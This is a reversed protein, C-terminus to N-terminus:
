WGKAALGARVMQVHIDVVDEFDRAYGGALTPVVAVGAQLCSTFVLKDRALLGKKTLKLLGLQDEEFPDAGAVYVVLEPRSALVRPLAGALAALYADDGTYDPLGIDLSSRQKVPYNNEQHISFTFVNVDGEFIKATGNGQHLDLDIVAARRIRGEAQLVRIAVAIDNIACFGEGKHAFAHHFGGGLNFCLGTDLAARGAAITGGAMWEFADLVARTCPAEFEYLGLEPTETFKMLRALYSETHARRLEERNAPLPEAFQEPRAHGEALLREKIRRYKQTPFVHGGWDLTYHDSYFFRPQAAPAPPTM